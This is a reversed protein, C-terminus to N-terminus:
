FLWRWTRGLGTLLCLGAGEEGPVGPLSRTFPAPGPAERRQPGPRARQAARLSLGRIRWSLSSDGGQWLPGRCFLPDCTSLPCARLLLAGWVGCAAPARSLSPRSLLVWMWSRTVRHCGPARTQGLAAECGSPRCHTGLLAPGPHTSGELPRVWPKGVGALFPLGDKWLSNGKPCPRPLRLLSELLPFSFPTGVTSM